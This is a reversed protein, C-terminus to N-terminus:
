LYFSFLGGIRSADLTQGNATLRLWTGLLGLGFKKNFVYELRAVVGVTTGFDLKANAAFGDGRLRPSIHLAPGAGIRFSGLNVHATLEVPFDLFTASGNAANVKAFAIGALAQLEFQGDATLPYAAGANLEFLADGVDAKSGDSYTITAIPNFQHELAVSAAFRLRAAAPPAAGPAAPMPAPAGSLSPRRAPSPPAVAASAGASPKALVVENDVAYLRCEPGEPLVERCFELARLKVDAARRSNSPVAGVAVGYAGSEGIAFAKPSSASLYQRYRRQGAEGLFPVGGEAASGGAASVGGEALAATSGLLAIVAGAISRQLRNM